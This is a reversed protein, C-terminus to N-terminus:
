CSAADKWQMYVPPLDNRRRTGPVPAASVYQGAKDYKTEWRESYAVIPEYVDLEYMLHQRQITNLSINTQERVKITQGKHTFEKVM